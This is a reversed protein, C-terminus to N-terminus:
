PAVTPASLSYRLARAVAEALKQRYEASSVLAAEAPNTIYGGEILAAPRNQGRLVTLFRARRVGRDQAGTAALVERHLRVALSLNQADFRNNPYVMAADDKYERTVASPMGAPTVCYTEIGAQQPSKTANFHLSLFLDAGHSEAFEVRAALPMDADNTRTLLVRWGDAELLVKLRRAWDLTYEKERGGVASLSGPERGGHGPDLVIVRSGTFPAPAGSLLPILTKQLDLTHVYPEGGILQPEFGLRIEL